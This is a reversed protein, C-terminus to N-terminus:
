GGGGGNMWVYLENFLLSVHVCGVFMNWYYCCKLCKYM